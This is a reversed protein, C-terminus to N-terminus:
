AFENAFREAIAIVTANPNGCTITPFVSADCVSLGAVGHVSLSQDVVAGSEPSPGMACTSTPHWLGRAAKHLFAEFVESPSDEELLLGGGDSTPIKVTGLNLGALAETKALRLALRMANVMIPLDDGGTLYDMSIVPPRRADASAPRVSGRTVPRALSPYIGFYDRPVWKQGREKIGANMFFQVTPWGDVSYFDKDTRPSVNAFLGVETLFQLRPPPESSAFQVGSIVHDQLNEGVGPMDRRVDIGLGDLVGAPGIGSVMLLKPTDLAGACLIVRKRVLVPTEFWHGPDRFVVGKASLAGDKEGLLIRMVCRNSLVELKGSAMGAPLHASASSSRKGKHDAAFEYRGVGGEQRQGNFDWHPGDFGLEIAAREFTNSFITRQPRRLQIPGHTGRWRPDGVQSSESKMYYPLVDGYSWKDNGLRVWEDFDRPNARTHIMVNVAGSGGVTNGRMLEPWRHKATSRPDMPYNTIHNDDRWLAFLADLNAGAINADTGDSGQELLLVSAGKGALRAAVVCGATGAGVVIYDVTKPDPM